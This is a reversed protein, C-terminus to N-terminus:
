FLFGNCFIYYIGLNASKLEKIVETVDQEGLDILKSSYLKFDVRNEFKEKIKKLLNYQGHWMIAVIKKM